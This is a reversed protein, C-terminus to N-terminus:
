FCRGDLQVEGEINRDDLECRRANEDPMAGRPAAISGVGM